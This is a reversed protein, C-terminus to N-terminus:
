NLINITATAIRRETDTQWMTVNLNTVKRGRRMIECTAYSDVLRAPRLFTISSNIVKPMTKSTNLSWAQLLAAHEMFGAICGGHLAPLANNGIISESAPLIFLNQGRDKKADIGLLQAYPSQNILTTITLDNPLKTLNALFQMYDPSDMQVPTAKSVSPDVRIFTASCFAVPSGENGEEYCIGRSFLTTENVRSTTATGLLSSGPTQPQAYDITINLTPAEGEHNIARAAGLGCVTDMLALLAGGTLAQTGVLSSANKSYPLVLVLSTESDEVVHIGLLECHKINAIRGTLDDPDSLPTNHLM